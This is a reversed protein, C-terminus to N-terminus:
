VVAATKNCARKIRGKFWLQHWWALDKDLASYSLITGDGLCVRFHGWPNGIFGRWGGSRWGPRWNIQGGVRRRIALAGLLCNSRV